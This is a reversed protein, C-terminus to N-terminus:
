LLTAPPKIDNSPNQVEINYPYSKLIYYFYFEFHGIEFSPVKDNKYSSSFLSLLKLSYFFIQIKKYFLKYIKFKIKINNYFILLKEILKLLFILLFFSFYKM